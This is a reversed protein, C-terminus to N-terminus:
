KEFYSHYRFLSSYYRFLAEEPKRLAACLKLYSSFDWSLLFELFSQFPLFCYLRCLFFFLLSLRERLLLLWCLECLVEVFLRILFSLLSHGVSASAEFTSLLFFSWKKIFFYWIFLFPFFSKFGHFNFSHCFRSWYYHGVFRAYLLQVLYTLHQSGLRLFHSCNQLLYHKEEHDLWDFFSSIIWGLTRLKDLTLKVGECIWIKLLPKFSLGVGCRLKGSIIFFFFVSKVLFSLSTSNKNFFESNSLGLEERTLLLDM